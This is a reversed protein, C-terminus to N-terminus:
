RDSKIAEVTTDHLILQKNLTNDFEFRIVFYKDEIIETEYWPKNLDVKTQDLAYDNFIDLLFKVGRDQLINRFRDFSWQGQTRRSTEYQLNEFVDKLAIRGTHQQSNWISIHTLTNWELENESNDASENIVETIWQVTELILETTAQFIVDIFFSKRKNMDYYIGYPGSNHKYLRQENLSWLQERTHYYFDPIFDHFFVWSQGEISYSMTFSKDVLQSDPYSSFQLCDNKHKFLIVCSGDDITAAPDYNEADINTCGLPM